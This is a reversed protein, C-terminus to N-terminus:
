QESQHSQEQQSLLLPLQNGSLELVRWSGEPHRVLNVGRNRIYEFIQNELRISQGFRIHGLWSNLSQELKEPLSRLHIREIVQKKIFRRYRRTRVKRVYRYYPFVQFGLFPVGKSTLYIQTKDPHLLLRIGALYQQICKRWVGLERKSSGFLVFDDVYRIYGPVRLEEKVYHDFRNLYLNGWWQSTLNGIPLGKRREFPTFINDGPFYIDHAEQRNSNDIILDSLWLTDKCAIKWRIERKLLEHDISPFFKRIDCKLVYPYKIAYQQFREIAAHTGKGKRNAYTDFIFTREFIPACVNMLAHHVVRDRYPAASIMRRKPDNIFFSKYAGPMYTKDRLEESLDLIGRELQFDFRSVNEQFRKGKRAKKAALWLNEFADIQAYLKTYTKM